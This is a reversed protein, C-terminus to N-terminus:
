WLSIAALVFGYLLVVLGFAIDFPKGNTTLASVLITAMVLGVTAGLVSWIFQALRLRSARHRLRLFIVVSGVLLGLGFFLALGEFLNSTGFIANCTGILGFAAIPAAIFYLVSRIVIVFTIRSRPLNKQNAFMESQM